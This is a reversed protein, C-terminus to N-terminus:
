FQIIFNMIIFQIFYFNCSKSFRWYRIFIRFNFDETENSRSTYCLKPKHQMKTKWKREHQRHNNVKRACTQQVSLRGYQTKNTLVNKFLWCKHPQVSDDTTHASFSLHLTSANSTTIVAALDSFWLIRAAWPFYFSNFTKFQMQIENRM